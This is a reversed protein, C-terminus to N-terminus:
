RYEWAFLESLVPLSSWVSEVPWNPTRKPGIPIRFYEISKLVARDSRTHYTDHGTRSGFSQAPSMGSM